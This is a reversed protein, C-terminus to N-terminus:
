QRMLERREGWFITYSCKFVLYTTAAITVSPSVLRALGQGKAQRSTTNEKHVVSDQNAIACRECDSRSMEDKGGGLMQELKYMESPGVTRQPMHM